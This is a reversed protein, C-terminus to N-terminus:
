SIIKCSNAGLILNSFNMHGKGCLRKFRDIFKIAQDPLYQIDSDECKAVYLDLINEFPIHHILEAKEM